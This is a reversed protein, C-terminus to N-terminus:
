VFDNANASYCYVRGSGFNGEDDKYKKFYETNTQREDWERATIALKNNNIAVEEGFNDDSAIGVKNPNAFSKILSGNNADFLYARGEGRANSTYDVSGSSDWRNAGVLVRNGSIAVSYGFYADRASDEPTLTHLLSGDVVNYIYARGSGNGPGVGSLDRAGVVARHGDIDVSRGFMQNNFIDPQDLTHLLSGNTVDYIFASGSGSSVSDEFPAGVIAYDGSIAVDYGFNDGSASAAINQNYLSHLVTADATSVDFIFAAGVSNLGSSDNEGNAGVIARNGDIDVSAGFQDNTGRDGGFPNPNNM